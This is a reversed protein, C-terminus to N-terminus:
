ESVAGGHKHGGSTPPEEAKMAGAEQVIVLIEVQGADEFELVLSFLTDEELPRKLGTLMFHLGGPEFVTPEGPAIEIVSVPRMKVVGDQVLHTHIAVRVAVPTSVAILRDPQTGNNVLTVYAAGSRAPGISARAWPHEILLAGVNFEHAAARHWGALAFGLAAISVFFRM